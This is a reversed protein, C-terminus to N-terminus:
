DKPPLQITTSGDPKTIIKGGLAEIERIARERGKKDVQHNLVMVWAAAQARKSDPNKSIFESTRRSIESVKQSDEDTYTSAWNSANAFSTKAAQSDGLFLLEDIGKYRWVYYSGHPVKPKLYKLGKETLKVAKQPMAAYMSASTSLGLYAKIFRPDRDIIVTFYEPSLDYGTKERAVEDGFYQLFGLYVWNAILNAYGFSPLKQLFQLRLKQSNLERQLTEISATDQTKLTTQLRPFQLGGVGLICLCVAFSAGIVQRSVPFM